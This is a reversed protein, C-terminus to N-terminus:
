PTCKHKHTQWDVMEGDHTDTPALQRNVVVRKDHFDPNGQHNIVMFACFKTNSLISYDSIVMAASNQVLYPVTYTYWQVIAFACHLM